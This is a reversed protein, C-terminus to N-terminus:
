PKGQRHRQVTVGQEQMSIRKKRRMGRFQLKVLAMVEVQQEGTKM